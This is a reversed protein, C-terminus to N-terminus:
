WVCSEGGLVDGPGIAATSAFRLAHCQPYLGCAPSYAISVPTHLSTWGGSHRRWRRGRPAIDRLGCLHLYGDDYSLDCVVLKMTPRLSLELWHHRDVTNSACGRRAGGKLGAVCDGSRYRIWSPTRCVYSHSVSPWVCPVSVCVSTLNACRSAHQLCVGRCLLATCGRVYAVDIGLVSSFVHLVAAMCSTLGHCHGQGFTILRAVDLSRSERQRDM